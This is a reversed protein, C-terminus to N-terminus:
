KKREKVDSELVSGRVKIGGPMQYTVTVRGPVPPAKVVVGPYQDFVTVLDGIKM